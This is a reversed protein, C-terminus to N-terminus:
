EDGCSSGVELEPNKVFPMFLLDPILFKTKYYPGSYNWDLDSTIRNLLRIFTNWIHKLAHYARDSDVLVSGFM